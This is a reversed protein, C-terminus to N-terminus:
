KGKENPWEHICHGFAAEQTCQVGVKLDLPEVEKESRKMNVNSKYRPLSISKKLRIDNLGGM